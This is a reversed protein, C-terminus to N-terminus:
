SAISIGYFFFTSRNVLFDHIDVDDEYERNYGLGGRAKDTRNAFLIVCSIIIMSLFLGIDAQLVLYDDSDYFKNCSEDDKSAMATWSLYLGYMIVFGNSLLSAKKNIKLLVLITFAIGFGIVILLLM